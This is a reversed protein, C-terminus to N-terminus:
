NKLCKGRYNLVHGPIIMGFLFMAMFMYEDGSSTFFMGFSLVAASIGSWIVPTIKISIGTILMGVSLLLAEFPIIMKGNLSSLIAVLPFLILFFSLVMWVQDLFKDIYTKIQKPKNRNVYFNIPFGVVPIAWWLFAFSYNGTLKIALTTAIAVIFSVYGFILFSTGSGREYKERTATIMRQILAISEESNLQKNEM